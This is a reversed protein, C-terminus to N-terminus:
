LGEALWAAVAEDRTIASFRVEGGPRLQGLADLDASCVVGIKRYGGITPGDPGLVIVSGDNTVQVAGPCAPESLKEPGPDLKIGEIRIGIRDSDLRVKLSQCAVLEQLLEYDGFPVVRLNDSALSRPTPRSKPSLHSPKNPEKPGLRGGRKLNESVVGGCLSLYLRAGATPAGILLQQGAHLAIGSQPTAEAGDVTVSCVAGTLGVKIDQVSVFRCAAM